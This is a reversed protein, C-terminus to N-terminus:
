EGYLWEPIGILKQFSAQAHSLGCGRLSNNQEVSMAYVGSLKKPMIGKDMLM